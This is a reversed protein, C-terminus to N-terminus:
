ASAEDALDGPQTDVRVHDVLRTVLAQLARQNATVHEHCLTCLPLLTTQSEDGGVTAIPPAHQRQRGIGFQDLIEALTGCGACRDSWRAWTAALSEDPRSLPKRTSPRGQALYPAGGIPDWRQCACVVEVSHNPLRRTTLTGIRGCHRCALGDRQAEFEEVRV